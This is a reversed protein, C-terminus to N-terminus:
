SRPPMKIRAIGHSSFWLAAIKQDNDTEQPREAAAVQM